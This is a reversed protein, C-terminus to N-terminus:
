HVGIRIIPQKVRFSELVQSSLAAVTARGGRRHAKRSVGGGYDEDRYSWFRAPRGGELCLELWMHLKPKLVWNRTGAHAHSLAVYQLAFLRSHRQLLFAHFITDNHLADYCEALDTAAQQVAAQLPQGGDLRALTAERLYPVLARVTGANCRLKPSKGSAQIMGPTLCPLRASHPVNERAYWACMDDFLLQVRAKINAAPFTTQLLKLCNGAFDATVGLDAAHLWDRRFIRVKVWPANFLPSPTKNQMYM